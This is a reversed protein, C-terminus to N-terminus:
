RADWLWFRDVRELEHASLNKRCVTEYTRGWALSGLGTRGSNQGPAGAKRGETWSM